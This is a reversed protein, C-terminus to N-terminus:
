SITVSNNIHSSQGAHMCASDFFLDLIMTESSLYKSIHDNQTVPTHKMHTHAYHTHKTLVVVYEYGNHQYM